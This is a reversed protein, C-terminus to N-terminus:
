FDGEAKSRYADFESIKAQPKLFEALKRENEAMIRKFDNGEIQADEGYYRDVVVNTSGVLLLYKINNYEVLMLKNNPDLFSQTIINVEDSPIDEAKFDKPLLWSSKADKNETPKRVPYKKKIYFMVAVLFTLFSVVVIYRWGFEPENNDIPKATAATKASTVNVDTAVPKPTLKLQLKYGDNNKLAEIAIEKKTELTLYVGSAGDKTMIARGVLWNQSLSLDKKSDISIGSIKLTVNKDTANQEIAGEFVSDFALNMEVLENNENVSMSLMNAAFLNCFLALTVVFIKM